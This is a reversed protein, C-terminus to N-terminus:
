TVGKRKDIEKMKKEKSKNEHESFFNPFDNKLSTYKNEFITKNNDKTSCKNYHASLL